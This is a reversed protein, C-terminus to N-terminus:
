LKKGILQQRSSPQQTNESLWIDTFAQTFAAEKLAGIPVQNHYFYGHGQDDVYLLLRDNPKIDPWIQRLAHEWQPRYDLNQRQWEKLTATILQECSFAREYTLELSLSRAQGHYHGSPTRLEAEYLKIWLWNIDAQGVRQYQPYAMFAPVRESMSKQNAVTPLSLLLM